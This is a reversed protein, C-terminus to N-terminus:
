LPLMPRGEPVARDGDTDPAQRNRGTQGGLSRYNNPTACGNSLAAVSLSTSSPARIRPGGARCGRQAAQLRAGAAHGATAAGCGHAITQWSRGLFTSGPAGRHHRHQPLVAGYVKKAFEDVTGDRRLVTLEDIPSEM